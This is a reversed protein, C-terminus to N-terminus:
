QQSRAVLPFADPNRISEVSVDIDLLPWYLHDATQREIVSIKEISAERFWPFHEFPLFLEEDGVLLWLGHRSVNTVEVPFTSTGPM